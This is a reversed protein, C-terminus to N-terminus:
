GAIKRSYVDMILYRYFLGGKTTTALYTIDWSWLQNPVSAQLPLPRQRTPANAEGRHALQDAERLM